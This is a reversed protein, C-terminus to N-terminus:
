TTSGRQKMNGFLLIAFIDLKRLYRSRRVDFSLPDNHSHGCCGIALSSVDEYSSFMKNCLTISSTSGPGPTRYLHWYQYRYLIKCVNWPPAAYRYSLTPTFSIMGNSKVSQPKAKVANSTCFTLCVVEHYLTWRHVTRCEFSYFWLNSKFDYGSKQKRVLTKSM